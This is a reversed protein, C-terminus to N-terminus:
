EGGGGETPNSAPLNDRVSTLVGIAWRLGPLLKPNLSPLWKSLADIGETLTETRHADVLQEAHAVDALTAIGGHSDESLAAIIQRRASM